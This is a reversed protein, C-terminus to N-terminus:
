MYYIEKIKLSQFRFIHQNATIAMQLNRIKSYALNSEEMMVSGAQDMSRRKM